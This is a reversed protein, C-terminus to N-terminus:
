RPDAVSVQHLANHCVTFVDYNDTMEICDSIDTFSKDCIHKLRLSIPNNRHFQWFYDHAELIAIRNCFRLM